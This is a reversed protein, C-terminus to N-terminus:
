RAIRHRTLTTSAPELAPLELTFFGGDKLLEIGALSPCHCVHFAKWHRAEHLAQSMKQISHGLFKIRPMGALLRSKWFILPSHLHGIITREIQAARQRVPEEQWLFPLATPDHCFLLVRQSSRLESFAQRINELHAERLQQWEPFEEQLTESKLVPLSILSSTVGMLVYHGLDQKWFPELGLDRQARHFSKIRMGGRGGVFSFKGLEHDGMTAQFATGFRSRLRALCLTASQFSAEDSVGMFGSDCSYDGNAVVFDVPGLHDIFHDLLHNQRLPHRLWIFHRYARLLLRLAPHSVANIEYDDGRAQEADSAFHIDSVIGITFARAM